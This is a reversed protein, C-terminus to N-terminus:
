SVGGGGPIHDDGHPVFVTGDLVIRRGHAILAAGLKALNAPNDLIAVTVPEGTIHITLAVEGSETREITVDQGATDEIAVPKTIDVRPEPEPARRFTRTAEAAALTAFVQAEAFQEATEAVQALRAAKAHYEDYRDPM